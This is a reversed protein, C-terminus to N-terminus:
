LEKTHDQGTKEQPLHKTLDVSFTENLEKIVETTEFRLNNKKALLGQRLRGLLYYLTHKNKRYIRNPTDLSFDWYFGPQEWNGYNESLYREIDDPALFVQNGFNREVLTFPRNWWEHIKSGHWLLGDREYHRFLDVVIGKYNLVLLLKEDCSKTVKWNPDQEFFHELQNFDNKDGLFGLDLDYEGQVFSKDRYLGLLTGSVLFVKKECEKAASQIATLADMAISKEFFHNKSKKRSIKSKVLKELYDTHHSLTEALNFPKDKLLDRLKFVSYSYGQDLYQNCLDLVDEKYESNEIDKYISYSPIKSSKNKICFLTVFIALSRAGKNKKFNASVIKALEHKLTLKAVISAIYGTPISLLPHRDFLNYVKTLM